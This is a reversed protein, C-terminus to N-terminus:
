CPRRSAARARRAARRGSGRRDGRVSADPTAFRLAPMYVFQLLALAGARRAAASQRALVSSRSRLSCRVAAPRALRSGHPNHGAALSVLYALYGRPTRPLAFDTSLRFARLALHRADYGGLGFRAGLFPFFPNGTTLGAKVCWPTM